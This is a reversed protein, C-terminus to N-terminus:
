RDGVEETSTAKHRRYAPQITKNSYPASQPFVTEVPIFETSTSKSRRLIIIIQLARTNFTTNGGPTSTADSPEFDL